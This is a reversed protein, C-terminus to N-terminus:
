KDVVLRYDGFCSGFFVYSLYLFAHVDEDGVEIQCCVIEDEGVVALKDGIGGGVVGRGRRRVLVM